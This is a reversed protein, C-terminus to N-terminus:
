IPPVSLDRTQIVRWPLTRSGVAMQVTASRMITGGDEIRVRAVLILRSSPGNDLHAPPMASFDPTASERSAIVSAVRGAQGGLLVALVPAPAAQPNVGAGDSSCHVLMRIRDYTEFPFGGIQLLEEPADIGAPQGFRDPRDRWAVVSDALVQAASADLGGAHVFLDRLLSAPAMQLNILGNSPMVEVDIAQGGFQIGFAESKRLSTKGSAQLQQLVQLIAADGIATAKLRSAQSAATRTEDRVVRTLGMVSIGLAVVIWLVAILAVGQSAARRASM